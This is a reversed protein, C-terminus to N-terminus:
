PHHAEIDTVIIRAVTGVVPLCALLFHSRLDKEMFRINHTHLFGQMALHLVQPLRQGTIAKGAHAAVISLLRTFVAANKVFEAPQFQQLAAGEPETEGRLHRAALAPICGDGAYDGPGFEAVFLAAPLEIMEVGMEVMHALFCAPLTGAQQQLFHLVYGALYRGQYGAIEIGPRGIFGNLDNCVLAVRQAEGIAFAQTGAPM